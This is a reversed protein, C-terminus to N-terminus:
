GATQLRQPANPQKSSVTSLCVVEAFTELFYKESRYKSDPVNPFGLQNRLYLPWLFRLMAVPKKSLHVRLLGKAVGSLRFELSDVSCSWADTPGYLNTLTCHFRSFM